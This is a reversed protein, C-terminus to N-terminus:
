RNISTKRDASQKGEHTLIEKFLNAVQAPEHGEGGGAVILAKM